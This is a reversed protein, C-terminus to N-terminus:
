AETEWDTLPDLTSGEFLKNYETVEPLANALFDEKTLNKPFKENNLATVYMAPTNIPMNATYEVQYWVDEVANNCMNVSTITYESGIYVNAM